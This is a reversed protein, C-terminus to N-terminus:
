QWKTLKTATTRKTATKITKRITATSLLTTSSTARKSFFASGIISNQARIM